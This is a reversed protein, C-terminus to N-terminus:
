PKREAEIWEYRNKDEDYYEIQVTSPGWNYEGLIDRYQPYEDVLDSDAQIANNVNSLTNEIDLYYGEGFNYVRGELIQNINGNTSCSVYTTIRSFHGIEWIRGYGEHRIVGLNLHDNVHQQSYIAVNHNYWTTGPKINKNIVSGMSINIISGVVFVKDKNPGDKIRGLRVATTSSGPGPSLVYSAKTTDNIAITSLCLGYQSQDYVIRSGWNPDMDSTFSMSMIVKRPNVDIHFPGSNVPNNGLTYDPDNPIVTVDIDTPLVIVGSWTDTTTTCTTLNNNVSSHWEYITDVGDLGDVLVKWTGSEGRLIGNPGIITSYSYTVVGNNVTSTTSITTSPGVITSVSFTRFHYTTSGTGGNYSCPTCGNPHNSLGCGSRDCDKEGNITFTVSHEGRAITRFGVGWSNVAQGNIKDNNGQDVNDIIVNPSCTVTPTGTQCHIRNCKAPNRLVFFSITHSSTTQTDWTQDYLYNPMNLLVEPYAQCFGWCLVTM